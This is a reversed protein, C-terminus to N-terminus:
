SHLHNNEVKTNNEVVAYKMWLTFEIKSKALDSALQVTGLMNIKNRSKDMFQKYIDAFFKDSPQKPGRIQIKM